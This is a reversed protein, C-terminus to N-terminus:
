RTECRDAWATYGYAFTPMPGQSGGHAEDAEEEVVRPRHPTRPRGTSGDVSRHNRKPKPRVAPAHMERQKIVRALHRPPTGTGTTDGGDIPDPHEPDAAHMEHHHGAALVDWRAELAPQPDLCDDHEGKYVEAALDHAVLGIAAEPAIPRPVAANHGHVLRLPCTLLSGISTVAIWDLRQLETVIGDAM